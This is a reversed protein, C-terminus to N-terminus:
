KPERAVDPDTKALELIKSVDVGEKAYRRGIENNHYDMRREAETNGTPGVEHADTVQKALEEGVSQTLWYSWLLHRYADEPVSPDRAAAEKSTEEALKSIALLQPAQLPRSSVVEIEAETVELGLHRAIERVDGAEAQLAYDGSESKRSFIDLSLDDGAYQFDVSAKLQLPLKSRGEAWIRVLEAAVANVAADTADQEVRFAVQGYDIKARKLRWPLREGSAGSLRFEADRVAFYLDQYKRDAAGFSMREIKAEIKKLGYVEELAAAKAVTAFGTWEIKRSFISFDADEIRTEALELGRAEAEAVMQELFKRSGMDVMYHAVFYAGVVVIVSLVLLGLLIKKMAEM